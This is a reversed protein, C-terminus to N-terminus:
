QGTSMRYPRIEWRGTPGLVVEELDL